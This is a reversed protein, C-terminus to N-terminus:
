FPCNSGLRQMVLQHRAPETGNASPHERADGWFIVPDNEGDDSVVPGVVAFDMAPADSVTCTIVAGAVERSARVSSNYGGQEPAHSWAKVRPSADGQAAYWATDREQLGLDSINGDQMIRVTAVTARRPDLGENQNMLVSFGLPTDYLRIVGSTRFDERRYEAGETALRMPTNVLLAGTDSIRKFWYRDGVLTVVAFGGSVAVGATPALLQADADAVAYEQRVTGHADQVQILWGEGLRLLRRVGDNHPAVAVLAEAAFFYISERSQVNGLGDLRLKVVSSQVNGSFQSRLGFSAEFEGGRRVLSSPVMHVYGDGDVPWIAHRPWVHQGQANVRVVQVRMGADDELGLLVMHGGMGDPCAALSQISHEGQTLVVNEEPPVVVGADPQQQIGADNAQAQAADPAMGGDQPPLDGHTDADAGLTVPAAGTCGALTWVLLWLSPLHKHM